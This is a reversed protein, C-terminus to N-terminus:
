KNIWNNDFSTLFQTLATYGREGVSDSLGTADATGDHSKHTHKKKLQTPKTLSYGTQILGYVSQYGATLWSNINSHLVPAPSESKRLIILISESDKFSNTNQEAEWHVDNWHLMSQACTEDNKAGVRCRGTNKHLAEGSDVFGFVKRGPYFESKLLVNIVM